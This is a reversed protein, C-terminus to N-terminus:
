WHLRRFHELIYLDGRRMREIMGEFLAEDNLGAPNLSISTDGETFQTVRGLKAFVNDGDDGGNGITLEGCAKKAHFFEGIAMNAVELQLEDPVSDINCFSKVRILAKQWAMRLMINDTEVAKYGYAPLLEKLMTVADTIGIDM